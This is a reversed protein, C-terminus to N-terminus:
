RLARLVFRDLIQFPKDREAQELVTIADLTVTDDIRAYHGSVAQVLADADGAPLQGTLSMHFEFEDFVYPYGWADLHAIERPTLPAVMRRARDAASLPARLPEFARVCAAAFDITARTQVVPVLAVFGDVKTVSLRGLSLPSQSTAFREAVALLENGSTDPMLEFPARLTAHFGYRAPDAVLPRPLIAAFPGRKGDPLEGKAPDYGIVACGFRWLASERQPTFYVAYRAPSM